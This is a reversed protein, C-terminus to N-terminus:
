RTGTGRSCAPSGAVLDPVLYSQWSNCGVQGQVHGHIPCRCSIQSAKMLVKKSSQDMQIADKGQITNVASSMKIDDAFKTCETGCDIDNIFINFSCGTGLCVGPFCCEHSVNAQIYLWQCCGDPELWGVLEKDM